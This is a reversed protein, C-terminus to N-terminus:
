FVCGVGNAVNASELPIFGGVLTLTLSSVYKIIQWFFIRSFKVIPECALILLKLVDRFVGLLFYSSDHSFLLSVPNLFESHSVHSAFHVILPFLTASLLLDCIASQPNHLIKFFNLESWVEFQVLM